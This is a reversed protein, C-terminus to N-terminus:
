SAMMVPRYKKAYLDVGTEAYGTGGRQLQIIDSDTIKTETLPDVMDKKILKNICEMTIVKRSTKLIACPTSNSLVDHTVACMYRADKTVLSRKDDKDKILVFEIDILDKVKLPKGSMPCLVQKSPKKVLTPKADPTLSPIWFSPLDKTTTNNSSDDSDKSCGPMPESETQTLKQKKAPPGNTFPNIPKTTISNETEAFRKLSTQTKQNNKKVEEEELQKKQKEYEKMKRAIEKKQHLIYELIAEKDYLWGDPRCLLVYM